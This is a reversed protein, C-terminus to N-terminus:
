GSRANSLMTHVHHVSVFVPLVVMCMFRYVNFFVYLSFAALQVLLTAAVASAKTVLSVSSLPVTVSIGNGQISLYFLFM